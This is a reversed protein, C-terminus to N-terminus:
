QKIEPLRALGSPIQLRKGPKLLGLLLERVWGARMFRGLLCFECILARSIETEGMCEGPTTLHMVTASLLGPCEAFEREAAAARILAGVMRM